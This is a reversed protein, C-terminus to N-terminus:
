SVPSATGEVLRKFRPNNRVLDFTPDVRLWGPSLDYPVKLLAELEDLAKEPQGTALYIRVLQHRLYPVVTADKGGLEVGRRGEQEAEAARGLYALALGVFVHQQPDDPAAKIHELFAIRASDAYIMTQARDGQLHYIQARVIGWTARDDGYAIPPL